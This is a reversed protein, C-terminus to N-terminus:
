NHVSNNFLDFQIQEKKFRILVWHMSNIRGHNPVPRITLSCHRRTIESSAQIYRVLTWRSSEDSASRHKHFLIVACLNWISEAHPQQKNAEHSCVRIMDSTHTRTNRRGKCVWVCVCARECVCVCVCVCVCLGLALYLMYGLARTIQKYRRGLATQEFRYAKDPNALPMLMQFHKLPTGASVSHEHRFNSWRSSSCVHSPPGGSELTQSSLTSACSICHEAYILVGGKFLLMKFLIEIFVFFM